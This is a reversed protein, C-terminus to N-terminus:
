CMMALAADLVKPNSLVPDASKKDRSLWDSHKIEAQPMKCGKLSDAQQYAVEALKDAMSRLQGAAKQQKLKAEVAAKVAALDPQKV